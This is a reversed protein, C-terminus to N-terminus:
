FYRMFPFSNTCVSKCWSVCWQPRYLSIDVFCIPCFINNKKVFFRSEKVERAVLILGLGLGLGLRALHTEDESSSLGNYDAAFHTSHTRPPNPAQPPNAQVQRQMSQHFDRGTLTSNQQGPGHGQGQYHGRNPQQLQGSSQRPPNPPTQSPVQPYTEQQQGGQYRRDASNGRGKGSNGSRGGTRGRGPGRGGPAGSRHDHNGRHPQEAALNVSAQVKPQNSTKGSKKPERPEEHKKMLAQAEKMQMDELEFGEIYGISENFSFGNM